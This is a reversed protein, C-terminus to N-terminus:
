DAGTTHSKLRQYSDADLEGTLFRQQDFKLLNQKHREIEIRLKNIQQDRDGEKAKFLVEMMAMQLDIIEPPPQLTGLFQLFSNM